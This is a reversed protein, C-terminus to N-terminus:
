LFADNVHMEGVTQFCRVQRGSSHPIQATISVMLESQNEELNASKRTPSNAYNLNQVVLSAFFICRPFKKLKGIHPFTPSVILLYLFRVRM